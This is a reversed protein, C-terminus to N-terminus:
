PLLLVRYFRSGVAGLADIFVMAEASAARADGSPVWAGGELEDAFQLQYMRGAETRVTLEVVADANLRIGTIDPAPASSSNSGRPTPTASFLVSLGGDPSRGQSVNETQPGFEVADSVSGDPRSLVITEGEQSLKFNVHLDPREPQNQEPEEDAWVLLFGRPPVAYGSPVQFKFRNTPNDTLYWGDLNVARAGPNFLEFWDQFRSDAPDAIGSSATNSAMWENILVVASAIADANATGPTPAPLIGRPDSEGDTVSGYSDDPDLAHYSLFDLIEPGADGQRSLIVIGSAGEIRFGTHLHGAASEDPEGDAWVISRGATGLVADPPFAWANPEDLSNSLFLGELSVTEPGANFLEIWPEREAQNDAPGNLNIPQVENLWLPPFPALSRAVSNPTGPTYPGAVTPAPDVTVTIGHLSLRLTLPGGNASQRYWFSLTYPQDQVLAPSLEQYISSARTTGGSSAVM